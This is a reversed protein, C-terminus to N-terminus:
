HPQREAIVARPHCWSSVIAGDIVAQEVLKAWDNSLRFRPPVTQVTAMASLLSQHLPDTAVRLQGDM